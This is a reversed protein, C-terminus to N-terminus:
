GLGHPPREGIKRNGPSLYVCRPRDRQGVTVMRDKSLAGLRQWNANIWVSTAAAYYAPEADRPNGEGVRHNSFEM